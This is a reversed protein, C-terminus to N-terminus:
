RKSDGLEARIKKGKNREKRERKKRTERRRGGGGKGGGREYSCAAIM